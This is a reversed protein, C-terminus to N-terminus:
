FSGFIAIDITVYYDCVLHLIHGLAVYTALITCTSYMSIQFKPVLSHVPIIHLFSKIIPSGAPTM